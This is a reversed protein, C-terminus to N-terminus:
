NVYLFGTGISNGNRLVTAFRIPTYVPLPCATGPIAFLGSMDFQPVLNASSTNSMYGHAYLSTGTPYTSGTQTSDHNGHLTVWKYTNPTIPDQRIVGYPQEGRHVFNSFNFPASANVLTLPIASVANAGVWDHQFQMGICIHTSDLFAISAYEIDQFVPINTSVLFPQGWTFSTGNFTGSVIYFGSSVISSARKYGRFVYFMDWNPGTMGPRAILNGFTINNSSSIYFLSTPASLTVTLTGPLTSKDVTVISYYTQKTVPNTSLLLFKETTSLAQKLPLLAYTTNPNSSFSFNATATGIVSFTTPPTFVVAILTAPVTNTTMLIVNNDSIVLNNVQASTAPIYAFTTDAVTSPDLMIRLALTGPIITTTAFPVYKATNFDDAPRPVYYSASTIGLWDIPGSGGTPVITPHPGNNNMNQLSTTYIPGNYNIYSLWFDGASMTTNRYLYTISQDDPSPLNTEATQRTVKITDSLIGANTYSVSTFAYKNQPEYYTMLLLDQKLPDADGAMSVFWGHNQMMPNHYRTFGGGSIEYMSIIEEGPKGYGVVATTGNIISVVQDTTPNTTVDKLFRDVVFLKNAYDFKIETSFSGRDYDTYLVQSKPITTDYYNTILNSLCVKTPDMVIVGSTTTSTVEIDYTVNMYIMDCLKQWTMNGSTDTSFIKNAATVLTNGPTITRLCDYPLGGGQNAIVGYPPVSTYLMSSVVTGMGAFNCINVFTPSGLINDTIVVQNQTGTLYELKSLTGNNRAMIFSSQLPAGGSPGTPTEWQYDSLAGSRIITSFNNSFTVLQLYTSFVTNPVHNIDGILGVAGTKPRFAKANAGFNGIEWSDLSLTVAGTSPGTSGGPPSVLIGDSTSVSTVGTFNAANTWQIIGTNSISLIAGSPPMPSPQILTTLCNNVGVGTNMVIGSGVGSANFTQGSSTNLGAISCQNIWVINNSNDTVLVQGATSLPTYGLNGTTSCTVLRTASVPNSTPTVWNYNGTASTTINHLFGGSSNYLSLTTLYEQTVPNAAAGLTTVYEQVIPTTTSGLNTFYGQTVIGNVTTDGIQGPNLSNNTPKWIRTTGVQSIEWGDLSLVLAGSLPGTSPSGGNSVLLGESTAVSTVAGGGSGFNARDSWQILGTNSIVLVAGTPPMPSPQIMTTLCNNVGTATNMVIGSGAGSANFTQGNSTNLGAISCQNIWTINNSNDTVLVQGLTSTPTYGLNGATSCTVLRTTASPNGTPTIWNYNTSANTTINHLFGGVTNYLSLTRIYEQNVPNTSDGLTTVYEQVIPTTTSGLNTFYGQTVIGNATTDGIQGPNISNNTPKWIRTTGNQSIEWGDLSLTLAGSLPGTSPAGGNSVLLGESTAVSTVAGGGSGFNARDSWQIVGTNSIVLVAGTPPMPSPQIMTTLCNNVGTATNMVIGSGAGSANFTQGSSTNLGAISCQNIWTINNSNDTVLVQGLTSIPTYNLNGTTSCTVLRTATLPNGTPTTWNYNSTAGSTINHLFGGITNYLSLTTLYEQTVPNTAGGLTTVYEQVIPTTTSGLNTFYGQTVIGNATTDGIQGPNISNNTPKWIRTTASQSIEWGDLSLTLAGSLPGTSPAGGNSVLLGESTAVTTVNGGGSGFNARDSWQIIGTNSIVLVAGTPPMPSPQIMTTLCNNVGTATNMVIGSGAGSANFTQGNSTNLGAISCQNIWTINNANDTILVQGLTSIPTYNLNGTTSCTVLRTTTLPNGTPTTWNYNNSASTTINHLFGGVTNYLSLTTLYEQTVPNAAGGLTTVYEQVIPTTTSGLNTFYGQTVIGNATTDGIQGPNISNNTPKWIRTTASQMIEWGDLSLTLAGFLPGTGPAGGNSVLLGESTAVTTVGSGSSAFNSRDTWQILGANSITLVAGTSPMPSPQTMTTLCNNVGIATNM